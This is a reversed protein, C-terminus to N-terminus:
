GLNFHFDPIRDNLAIAHELLKIAIDYQGCQCAMGGFHQLAPLHDPDRTLVQRYAAEADRIQGTQRLWQARAFLRGTTEDKSQFALGGGKSASKTARREKRNM